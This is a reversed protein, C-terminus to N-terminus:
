FLRQLGDMCTLINKEFKERYMQVDIQSPQLGSCEIWPVDTHKKEENKKRKKEPKNILHTQTHTHRIDHTYTHTHRIDPTDRHTHRILKVAVRFEAFTM